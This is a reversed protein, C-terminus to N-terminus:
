RDLGSNNFPEVLPAIHIKEAEGQIKSVLKVIMMFNIIILMKESIERM